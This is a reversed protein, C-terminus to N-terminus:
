NSQTPGQQRQRTGTGSSSRQYNEQHVSQGAKHYQNNGGNRDNYQFNNHTRNRDRNENDSYNAHQRYGGQRYNASNNTKVNKVETALSAIQKTLQDLKDDGKKSEVSRVTHRGRSKDAVRHAELRVAIREAESLTRPGVERLRLRIDTEPLADIFHDLALLEIVDPSASPYAKRTLKKISQAFEPITENKERVKSQLNSRFVEARNESGFRNSLASVLIKFDRKQRHELENLLARAGGVLSSALYLSKTEYDWQNIESVINFHTLYEDLDESGDYTHPKIRGNPKPNFNLPFPNPRPLLQPHSDVYDGDGERTCSRSRFESNAYYSSDNDFTQPTSSFSPGRGTRESGSRVFSTVGEPESDAFNVSKTRTQSSSIQCQLSELKDEFEGFCKNMQNQVNSISHQLETSLKNIVNHIDAGDGGSIREGALQERTYIATETRASASSEVTDDEGVSQPRFTVINSDDM